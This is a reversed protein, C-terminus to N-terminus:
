GAKSYLFDLAKESRMRSRIREVAGEKTLRQQVEEPTQKMQRALAAIENDLEEDTVQIDEAEAIRGLLLSSKVEKVAAERQGARLRGFDMRKMDETRMGQAVLARLGRELRLDIQHEVMARPVAFDHKELLREVLAEKGAQEAQVSKQTEMNERMRQKLLDLTEFEQNLEKAFDDNLEPLTKTKIANVKVRYNFVKGALRPDHFDQPYSVEFAREEGPKVGRLNQSFEPLTNAGGIEVMVDNMEVPQSVSAAGTEEASAPEEQGSSSSPEPKPSDEKPIATFSVQAFEGDDAGREENVPDFSAQSEQMRKLEAEVEEDSVKIEPKEVKIDQYGSLEFDPLVEFVAKFRVAEGLRAQLDYIFPQSVPRLGADVVAQRFYRPVLNELVDSNIENSFRNRVVSPPVKGKRFGPVRAQQSYAKVLADQEKSVVEAPIEVTVERRCAEEMTDAVDHADAVATGPQTQPESEATNETTETTEKEADLRTEESRRGFPASSSKEACM